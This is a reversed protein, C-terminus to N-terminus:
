IIRKIVAGHAPISLPFPMASSMTCGGSTQQPPEPETTFAVQAARAVGDPIELFAFAHDPIIIRLDAPTDSFNVAIMLTEAQPTKTHRIFAFHTCPNFGAHNQNAYSLDFTAGFHLAPSSSLLSFLKIYLNYLRNEAASLHEENYKGLNNFRRQTDICWYDFISTRGDVGSFGECDMGREGFEQGAYLMFPTTNLCTSVVLAPIAKLPDGLFFSSAIRQEDHNELFNLMFPQLDGLRQWCRSIDSAPANGCSVARLTDYLGVKDYLYDFGSKIYDRYSAPNYIEAIFIPSNNCAKIQPIVWEWFPAPAMEAMDCRFGDVGKAAWFSLVDLMKHWTDPVPDFYQMGNHQIDVGYNLKVTEYWDDPTPNPVFCDNGTARAPTESYSPAACEGAQSPTSLIEAVSAQVPAACEYMLFSPTSLIEAVSAQVPAACEGAQSPTAFSTGPLYYFNNQPSFALQPNDNAGFDVVGVPKSDSAYQRFLHNPIFDIIVKLGTSHCREVLAIFEEMRRPVDCALDPSVDYYDRIAFPSGARGKVLSPESAPIGESPYPTTSAHELIGTLWIHTVCLRKIASLAAINIDAFKGVGNEEMSGYPICCAKANGFLRPLLQYIVMKPM